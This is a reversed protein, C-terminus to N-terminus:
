PLIVSDLGDVDSSFVPNAAYLKGYVLMQLYKLIRDRIVVEVM